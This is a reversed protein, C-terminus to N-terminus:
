LKIFKLIENNIEIFYINKKLHSLNINLNSSEHTGSMIIEGLVNSIKYTGQLPLNNISLKNKAPNPFLVIKSEKKENLGVTVPNCANNSYVEDSDKEISILCPCMNYHDHMYSLGYNTGVGEIFTLPADSALHQFTTRVHKKGTIYYVSDITSISTEGWAGHIIFEDEIELSLDMVLYEVTDLGSMTEIAGMFWAKGETTEERIYGNSGIANLNFDVGGSFVTGVMNYSLGAVITEDAENTVNERIFQQDLNCFPVKWKTNQTGLISTYNQAIGSSYFAIVILITKVISNIEKM